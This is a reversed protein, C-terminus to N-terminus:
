QALRFRGPATGTHPPGVTANYLALCGSPKVAKRWHEYDGLVGEYSHDGDVFIVYFHVKAEGGSSDGVLLQCVWQEAPSSTSFAMHTSSTVRQELYLYVLHIGFMNFEGRVINSEVISSERLGIYAM